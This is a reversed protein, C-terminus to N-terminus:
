GARCARSAQPTLCWLLPRERWSLRHAGRELDGVDQPGGSGGVTGGLGPVQAQLLELDHRRDLVATGGGQTTMNLGARVAAVLADGVVAAAVPVAWLALTRGGARPEGLALGIQQRDSVEVDDERQRRLNGVDRELVLGDDVIQQELRRRLGHQPDRRIRLMEAGPDSDGGHQVRPSRRQGMVRMHVHDDRAAADREIALAPDGRSGREQQRHAHKALQEPAHEQAPQQGQVISAPEDEEAAECRKGVPAGEKWKAGTRL